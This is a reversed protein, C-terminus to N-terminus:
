IKDQGKSVFGEEKISSLGENVFSEGISYKVPAFRKSIIETSSSM